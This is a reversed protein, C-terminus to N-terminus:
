KYTPHLLSSIGDSTHVANYTIDAVTPPLKPNLPSVQMPLQSVTMPCQSDHFLLDFVITRFDSFSRPSSLTITMKDGFVTELYIQKM